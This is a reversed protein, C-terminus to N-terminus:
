QAPADQYWVRLLGDEDVSASDPLSWGPNFQLREAYSYGTQLLLRGDRRELITGEYPIVKGVDSILTFDPKARGSIRGSATLRRALELGRDVTTRHHAMGRIPLCHYLYHMEIGYERLAEVINELAAPSDNLGRLLVTQDYVRIGTSLIDELARRVEPLLEAVHNVHVAMELRDHFERFLDLMAGNIRAPEHLPLRTGMRLRRVRPAFTAFATVVQRLRAVDMLPDGGTVIVETIEAARPDEGCYRAALEIEAASMHNVDYQGRLCWRCHAACVLTPLVVVTRRYLRELGRVPMGEFMLAVHKGSHRLGETPSFANERADNIYQLALVNLLDPNEDPANLAAQYHQKLYPSVKEPFVGRTIGAM